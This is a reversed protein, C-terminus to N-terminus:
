LGGPGCDNKLYDIMSEYLTLQHEFFLTDYFHDAGELEVYEYPKNHKELQDYYIKAQVPQVRQDVSGHVLLVPVNVDEVEEVPNVAGK